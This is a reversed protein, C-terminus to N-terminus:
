KIVIKKGNKIYIGKALGEGSGNTRVLRGNLDYICQSNCSAQNTMEMSGIGTVVDDNDKIGSINFTIQTGAPVKQTDIWTRFGKVSYSKNQTNYWEGNSLLFAGPEIIPKTKWVYTGYHRLGTFQPNNIVEFDQPTTCGYFASSEDTINNEPINEFTVNKILYINAKYTDDKESLDLTAYGSTENKDLRETKWNEITVHDSNSPKIIYHQGAELASSSSVTLDM